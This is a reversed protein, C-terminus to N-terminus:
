RKARSRRQDLPFISHLPRRLYVPLALLGYVTLMLPWPYGGADIFLLFEEQFVQGHELCYTGFETFPHM